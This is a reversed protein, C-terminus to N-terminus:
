KKGRKPSSSFDGKKFTDLESIRHSFSIMKKNWPHSFSPIVYIEDFRSQDILYKCIQQHALHPPNFAGGFCAIQKKLSMFKFSEGFLEM